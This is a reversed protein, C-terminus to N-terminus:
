MCVHDVSWDGGREERQAYYRSLIDGRSQDLGTIGIWPYRSCFFFVPVDCVQLGLVECAKNSADTELRPSGSVISNWPVNIPPRWSLTASLCGPSLSLSSTAAWSATNIWEGSSVDLASALCAKVIVHEQATISKTNSFNNHCISLYPMWCQPLTRGARMRSLFGKGPHYDTWVRGFGICPHFSPSLRMCICLQSM